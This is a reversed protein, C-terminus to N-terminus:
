ENFLCDCLWGTLLLIHHQDIKTPDISLMFFLSFSLLYNVTAGCEIEFVLEYNPVLSRSDSEVGTGDASKHKARPEEHFLIESDSFQHLLNVSEELSSQEM